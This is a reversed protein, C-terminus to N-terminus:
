RGAARRLDEVFSKLEQDDPALKLLREAYDLASALDGAQQSIQVLATLIDRNDPHRALAEALRQRAEASRGTSNLAIAYVYANRASDPQLETAQKLEGVAADTKKLRILALGLAYHLGADNPSAALAARLM